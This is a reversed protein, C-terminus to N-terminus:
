LQEFTTFHLTINVPSIQSQKVVWWVMLIYLQLQWSDTFLVYTLCRYIHEEVLYVKIFKVLCAIINTNLFSRDKWKVVLYERIKRTNYQNKVKEACETSLYCTGTYTNKTGSPTCATNKFRVLSFISFIRGQRGNPQKKRLLQLEQVHPDDKTERRIDGDVITQSMNYPRFLAYRLVQLWWWTLYM